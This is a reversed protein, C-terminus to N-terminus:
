SSSRSFKEVESAFAEGDQVPELNIFIHAIRGVRVKLVLYNKKRSVKLIDERKLRLDSQPGKIAFLEEELTIETKRDQFTYGRLYLFPRIINYIGMLLLFGDYFLMSLPLRAWIILFILSLALVTVFPGLFRRQFWLIPRHYYAFLFDRRQEKVTQSYSINM